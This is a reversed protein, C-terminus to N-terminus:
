MTQRPANSATPAAPSRSPITLAPSHKPSIASNNFWGRLAVTRATEGQSRRTSSASSKRRMMASKGCASASRRWIAALRLYRKPLPPRWTSAIIVPPVMGMFAGPTLRPIQNDPSRPRAM